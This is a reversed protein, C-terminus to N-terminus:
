PSERIPQAPGILNGESDHFFTGLEGTRKSPYDDPAVIADGRADFGPM